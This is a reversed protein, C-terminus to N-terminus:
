GLVQEDDRGSRGRGVLLAACWASLAGGGKERGRLSACFRALSVEVTTLAAMRGLLKLSVATLNEKEVSPPAEALLALVEPIMASLTDVRNQDVSNDVLVLNSLLQLERLVTALTEASPTTRQEQIAAQLSDVHAQMHEANSRENVAERIAGITHACSRALELNNPNQDM